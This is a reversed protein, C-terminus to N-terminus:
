NVATRNLQNIKFWIFKAVADNKEHHYLRNKFHMEWDRVASLITRGYGFIGHKPDPGLLCCFMDNEKFLIPKFEKTFPPLNDDEYNLKVVHDQNLELQWM